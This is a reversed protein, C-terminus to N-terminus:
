LDLSPDSILEYGITTRKKEGGSLGKVYDGGFMTDQCDELGLRKLLTDVKHEIISSATGADSRIRASFTM